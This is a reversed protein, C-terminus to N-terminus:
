AAARPKTQKGDAPGDGRRLRRFLRMGVNKLAVVLFTGSAGGAVTGSIRGKMGHLHTAAIGFGYSAAFVVIGCAVAVVMVVLIFNVTRRRDAIVEYFLGCLDHPRGDSPHQPSDAPSPLGTM